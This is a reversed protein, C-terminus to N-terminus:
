NYFFLVFFFIVDVNSKVFVIDECIKVIIIKDLDKIDNLVKSIIYVNM